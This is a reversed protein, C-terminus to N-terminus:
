KNTKIPELICPQKEGWMWGECVIQGKNNIAVASIIREISYNDSYPTSISDISEIGLLEAITFCRGDKWIAPIERYERCCLHRKIFGLVTSEDNFDIGNFDLLPQLGKEIDWLSTTEVTRDEERDIVM